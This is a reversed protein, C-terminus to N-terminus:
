ELFVKKSFVSPPPPKMPSVPPAPVVPMFGLALEGPHVHTNFLTVLETLYALLQDGLVGPHTATGSGQHVSAGELVVRAIGRVTVTGSKVDVVVQNTAAADTITVTQAVDDMALTLGFDSRWIKQTPQPPAPSPPEGPGEPLGWYGGLWVPRRTNGGEFQIWVGSGRAPISYFGAKLGAVPACPTAWGSPVGKLVRPVMARIRGMKKPDDNDTVVGRYIGYVPDRAEQHDGSQPQTESM